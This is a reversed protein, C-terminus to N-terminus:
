RLDHKLARNRVSRITSLRDMMYHNHADYDIVNTQTPYQKMIATKIEAPPPIQDMTKDITYSAHSVAILKDDGSAPM